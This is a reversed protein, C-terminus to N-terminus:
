VPTYAICLLLFCLLLLLVLCKSLPTTSTSRTCLSILDDRTLIEELHCMFVNAMLPDHPSGMDVGDTQEYHQGNLQFFSIQRPLKSYNLSSIRKCVLAMTKTSGIM